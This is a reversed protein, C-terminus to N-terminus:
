LYKKYYEVTVLSWDPNNEVDTKVLENFGYHFYIEKNTMSQPEVGVTLNKYWKDRLDDVMYKFLKSFYGQGQYGKITRFACLYATFKDVLGEPNIVGNKSIFATAECIIEDDLFGYYPIARGNKYYGIFEDKWTRRNIKDDANEIEYDWKRLIEGFTPTRCCFFKMNKENNIM